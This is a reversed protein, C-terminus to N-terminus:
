SVRRLLRVSLRSGRAPQRALSRHLTVGRQTLEPGLAPGGLTYHYLTVHSWWM